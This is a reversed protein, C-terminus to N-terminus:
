SDHGDSRSWTLVIRTGGGGPRSRIDLDAGILLARERMGELGFHGPGIPEDPDFGKGRDEVSLTLGEGDAELRVEIEGGGGHRLANQVAEQAIRYVALSVEQPLAALHDEGSVLLRAGSPVASDLQHRLAGVLGQEVLEPPRLLTIIHRCKRAAESLAQRGQMLARRAPAPEGRGWANEAGVVFMEAAALQQSLDDHLERAITRREEEQATLLRRVMEQLRSALADVLAQQRRTWALYRWAAMLLTSLLALGWVLFATLPMTSLVERRDITALYHWDYLGNYQTGYLVKEGGADTAEGTGSTVSGAAKWLAQGPGPRRPDVLRPGEKPSANMIMAEDGVPALLFTRETKYSPLGMATIWYLTKWPDMAAVFYAPAESGTPDRALKAGVLLRPRGLATPDLWVTPREKDWVKRVTEAPVPPGPKGVTSGAIWRGSDDMFGAGLYGREKVWSELALRGAEAEEPSLRDWQWAQRRASQLGPLSLAAAAHDELRGIWIFTLLDQYYLQLHLYSRAREELTREQYRYGWTGLSAVLALVLLPLLLIDWQRYWRRRAVARSVRM